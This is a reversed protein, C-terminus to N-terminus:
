NTPKWVYDLLKRKQNPLIEVFKGWKNGQHDTPTFTTPFIVAADFDRLTELSSVFKERTLDKGARKLAEIIVKGAGYGMLDYLNPRGEPAMPFKTKFKQRYAAVPPVDSEELHPLPYGSIVGIGAEGAVSPFIVTSIGASGLWQTKLGMEKAQRVIIGAEKVYGYIITLDPESSKLNVIQSVFSTDGLNYTENRVLTMGYSKLRAIVGELGTKGYEGADHIVAIKKAKAAKVAYDTLVTPQHEESLQSPRFVHKRVPSTFGQHSAAVIFTPINAEVITQLAALNATSCGGNVLMFVKDQDVMRKISGIAKPAACGDDSVIVKFKRGYIGGAENAEDFAISAGDRIGLGGWAAPGTITGTFGVLISDASLGTKDEANSSFSIAILALPLLILILRKANM